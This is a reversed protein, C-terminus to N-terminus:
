SLSFQDVYAFQIQRELLGTHGRLATNTSMRFQSRAHWGHANNGVKTLFVEGHRFYLKCNVVVTRNLDVAIEFNDIHLSILVPKLPSRHNRYAAATHRSVLWETITRVFPMKLM